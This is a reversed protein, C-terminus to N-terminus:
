IATFQHQFDLQGSSEENCDLNAVKNKDVIAVKDVVDLKM